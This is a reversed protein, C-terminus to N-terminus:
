KKSFNNDRNRSKEYLLEFREVATLNEMGQEAWEEKIKKAKAAASRKAAAAKDDANRRRRALAETAAAAAKDDANRERPVAKIASDDFRKWSQNKRAPASGAWWSKREQNEKVERYRIIIHFSGLSILPLIFSFLFPRLFNEGYYEGGVFVNSLLYLIIIPLLGGILDEGFSPSEWIKWMIGVAWFGAAAGSFGVGYGFFAACVCTICSLACFINFVTDINQNFM